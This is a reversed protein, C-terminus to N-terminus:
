LFWSDMWDYGTRALYFFLLLVIAFSSFYVVMNIAPNEGNKCRILGFRRGGIASLYTQMLLIWVPFVIFTGRIFTDYQAYSGISFITSFLLYDFM